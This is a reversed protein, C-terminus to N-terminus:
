WSVTQFQRRSVVSCAVHSALLRVLVYEVFISSRLCALRSTKGGQAGVRRLETQVWPKTAM